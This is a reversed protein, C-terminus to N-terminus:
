IIASWYAPNAYPTDHQALPRERRPLSVDSNKHKGQQYGGTTVSPQRLCTAPLRIFQRIDSEEGRESHCKVIMMAKANLRPTGFAM